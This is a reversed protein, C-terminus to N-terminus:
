KSAMMLSFDYAFDYLEDFIEVVRSLGESHGDEWAKSWIFNFQAETLCYAERIKSQMEEMRANIQNNYSRIDIRWSELNLEYAELDSAYLRAQASTPNKELLPTRPKKPYTLDKGNYYGFDLELKM